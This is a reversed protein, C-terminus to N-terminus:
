RVQGFRRPTLHYRSYAPRSKGAKFVMCPELLSDGFIVNGGTGDSFVFNGETLNMVTIDAPLGPKLSGKSEGMGLAKAPKMTTM